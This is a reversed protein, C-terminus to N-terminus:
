GSGIDVFCEQLCYSEGSYCASGTAAKGDAHAAEGSVVLPQMQRQGSPAGSPLWTGCCIGEEREAAPLNETHNM